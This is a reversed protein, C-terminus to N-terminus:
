MALKFFFTCYIYTSEQSFIDYGLIFIHNKVGQYSTNQTVSWNQALFIAIQDESSCMVAFNHFFM